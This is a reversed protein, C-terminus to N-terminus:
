EPLGAMGANAQNAPNGAVEQQLNTGTGANSQQQQQEDIVEALQGNFDNQVNKLGITALKESYLKNLTNRYIKATEIDGM